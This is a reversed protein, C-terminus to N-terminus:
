RAGAAPAAPEMVKGLEVDAREVNSRLSEAMAPSDLRDDLTRVDAALRRALASMEARTLGTEATSGAPLGAYYGTFRTGAATGWHGSAAYAAPVVAPPQGAVTLPTTVSGGVVAADAAKGGLAAVPVSRVVTRTRWRVVPVEVRVPVKVLQKVVKEATVTRTAGAVRQVGQETRTVTRPFAAHGGLLGLILCAAAFGWSPVLRPARERRSDRERVGAAVRRALGEFYADGPEDAEPARLVSDWHSLARYERACADCGRVHEQLQALRERPAEGDLVEHMTRLADKCNM